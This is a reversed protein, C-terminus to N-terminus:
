DIWRAQVYITADDQCHTVVIDNWRKVNRAVYVARKDCRPARWWNPIPDGSPLPVLDQNKAEGAPSFSIASLAQKLAADSAAFSLFVEQADNIADSHGQLEEIASDPYRGFVEWFLFTPPAINGWVISLVFLTFPTAALGVPAWRLTFLVAGNKPSLLRRFLRAVLWFVGLLVGFLVIHLFVAVGFGM